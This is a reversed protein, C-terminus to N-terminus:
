ALKTVVPFRSRRDSTVSRPFPPPPAAHPAMSRGAMPGAFGSSVLPSLAPSAAPRTMSPDTQNPAEGQAAQRVIEIIDRM